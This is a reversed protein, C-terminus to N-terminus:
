DFLPIKASHVPTGTRTRNRLHLCLNLEEDMSIGIEQLEAEFLNPLKVTRKQEKGNCRIYLEVPLVDRDKDRSFKQGLWVIDKQYLTDCTGFSRKEERDLALKGHDDKHHFITIGVEVKKLFQKRHKEIEPQLHKIAEKRDCFIQVDPFGCCPCESGEFSTGCVLCKM